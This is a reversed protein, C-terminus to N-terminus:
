KWLNLIHKKTDLYLIAIHYRVITLEIGIPMSDKFGHLAYMKPLRYLLYGLITRVRKYVTWYMFDGFRRIPAVDVEFGAYRRFYAWVNRVREEPWIFNYYSKMTGAPFKKTDWYLRDHVQGRFRAGVSRHVLRTQYSPYSAEHKIEVIDNNKELFIRTPMRYVLHEPKPDSTIKRIEQVAEDTLTDDSDMFFYWDNTAADMNRQRVTAKDKVCRVNKEDTDYQRIVKAGFSKAIEVTNDTSNGDCVIVEDFDRFSELCKALGEASNLTLIGVSCKIKNSDMNNLKM